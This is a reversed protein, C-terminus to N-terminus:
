TMRSGDHRQPSPQKGSHEADDNHEPQRTCRYRDRLGTLQIALEVALEVGDGDGCGPGRILGDDLGDLEAFADGGAREPRDKDCRHLRIPGQDGQHLRQMVRIQPRVIDCASAVDLRGGDARDGAVGAVNAGAGEFCSTSEEEYGQRRGVGVLRESREDEGLDHGASEHQRHQRQERPPHDPVPQTRDPLHGLGGVGDSGARDVTSDFERWPTGFGGPESSREVEHDVGGVVGLCLLPTEDGVDAVFQARGERGQLAVGGQILLSREGLRRGEVIRHASDIVLCAPHPAHDFLQEGQGAEVLWVRELPGGKVDPLEEGVESVAIVAFASLYVGGSV